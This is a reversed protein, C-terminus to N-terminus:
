DPLPLPEVRSLRFAVIPASSDWPPATFRVCVCVCVCVCECVREFVLVHVWVRVCVCVRMCLRAWAIRHGRM